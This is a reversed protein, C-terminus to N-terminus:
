FKMFISDYVIYVKKDSKIHWHSEDMNNSIDIPQEKKNHLLRNDM